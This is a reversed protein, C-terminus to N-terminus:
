TISIAEKRLGWSGVEKTEFKEEAVEEGREAKMSSFLTLAKNQIRSQRLPINHSRRSRSLDSLSEELWCYTQKVKKDNM